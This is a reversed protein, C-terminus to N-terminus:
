SSYSVLVISSGIALWAASYMVALLDTRLPVFCTGTYILTKNPNQMDVALCSNIDETACSFILEM